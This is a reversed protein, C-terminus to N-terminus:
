EHEGYKVVQSKHQALAQIKKNITEEGFLSVIDHNFPSTPRGSPWTPQFFLVNRSNRAAALTALSTVRHDGHTDHPHHTVITTFPKIFQEVYRVIENEWLFLQTDKFIGTELLELKNETLISISKLYEDRRSTFEPYPKAKPIGAASDSITILGVKVGNKILEYITGGANIELDDYHAGVFLVSDGFM